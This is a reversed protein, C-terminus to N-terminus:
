YATALALTDSSQAYQKVVQALAMQQSPSGILKAQDISQILPAIKQIENLRQYIGVLALYSELDPKLAVAKLFHHEAANLDGRNFHMVGACHLYYETNKIEEPLNRFFDVASNSIPFENTLAVALARLEATNHSTSVFGRLLQIVRRWDRLKSAHMAIMCREAYHSDNGVLTVANQLAENALDRFGWKLAADAVLISARPDPKAELFIANVQAVTKETKGLEVEALAIATSIM